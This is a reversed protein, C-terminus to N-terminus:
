KKFLRQVQSRKGTHSRYRNRAKVMTYEQASDHETSTDYETSSDHEDYSSEPTLQLDIGMSQLDKITMPLRDEAGEGFKNAYMVAEEGSVFLEHINYQCNLEISHSCAWIPSEALDQVDIGSRHVTM